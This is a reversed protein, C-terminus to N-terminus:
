KLYNMLTTVLAFYIILGSIDKISTIIPASGAAQDVGLRILLYPVLFGLLSALTMTCVLAVGVAVGLMPDGQMVYAIIGSAFGIASGISLGVMIEKIFHSRFHHLEIDGLAVGRAFVTSSQTGVTGGMDMILPIFVAVAVMTQLTAEFQDIVFGALIGAILTIILFPMRVKWIDPFSGSVLIASRDAERGKIDVLGAQDYIYETADDEIIDIADDITIIGVLRNERDVVPLALLDMEQLTRAAEQDSTDTTIKIATQMLDEILTTDEAMLLDKLSLVGELVKHNNTVFLTYITEKEKALKLVREVSQAASMGKKLTIFETTMIRGATEAQYGMILNTAIREEHSLMSILKKAVSAPLEDLLRVRDDPALENIYVIAKEDTFSQLLNHQHNTDLQEFIFLAQDKPLLRFAIVLEDPSLDYFAELLEMPESSCLLNKLNEMDRGRLYSQIRTILM